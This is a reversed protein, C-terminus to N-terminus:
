KNIIVNGDQSVNITYPTITAVNVGDECVDIYINYSNPIFNNAAIGINEFGIELNIPAIKGDSRKAVDERTKLSNCIATYQKGSQSDSEAPYFIFSITRNEVDNGTAQYAWGSVSIIGDNLLINDLYWELEGFDLPVVDSESINVDEDHNDPSGDTDDKESLNQSSDPSVGAKEKKDFYIGSNSVIISYDTLVYENIDNEKVGLYISYIDNELEGTSFIVNEFGVDASTPPIIGDTRELVDTRDKLNGLSVFYQNSENGGSFILYIERDSISMESIQYAWGSIKYLGFREDEVDISDICYQIGDNSSLQFDSKHPEIYKAGAIPLKYLCLYIIISALCAILLWFLSKKM